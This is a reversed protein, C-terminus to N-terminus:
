DHDLERKNWRLTLKDMIPTLKNGHARRLWQVMDASSDFGDRIAEENTMLRIERSYKSDPTIKVRELAIITAIGVKMRSSHRQKYWIQVTENLRWYGASRFTTFEEDLFKPWMLSFSLIRM